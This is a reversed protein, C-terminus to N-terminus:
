VAPFIQKLNTLKEVTKQAGISHTEIVFMSTAHYVSWRFRCHMKYHFAAITAPPNFETITGVSDQSVVGLSLAITTSSHVSKSQPGRWETLWRTQDHDINCSHTSPCEGVLAKIPSSQIRDTRSNGKNRHQITTHVVKKTISQCYKIVTGWSVPSSHKEFWPTATRRIGMVHNMLSVGYYVSSLSASENYVNKANTFM